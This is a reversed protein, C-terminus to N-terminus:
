SDATLDPNDLLRAHLADYHRTEVLASGLGLRILLRQWWFLHPERDRLLDSWEQYQNNQNMTVETALGRKDAVNVSVGGRESEHGYQALHRTDRFLSEGDGDGAASDLYLTDDDEDEDEDDQDGIPQSEGDGDGAAADLYLTDEEEEEDGDEDEEEIPQSEGDANGHPPVPAPTLTPTPPTNGDEDRIGQAVGDAPPEASTDQTPTDPATKDADYTQPLPRPLSPPWDTDWGPPPPFNADRNRPTTM